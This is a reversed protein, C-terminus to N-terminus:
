RVAVSTGRFEPCGGVAPVMTIELGIIIRGLDGVDARATAKLDPSDPLRGMQMTIAHRIVATLQLQNAAHAGDGRPTAFVIAQLRGKVASAVLSAGKTLFRSGPPFGAPTSETAKSRMADAWKNDVFEILRVHLEIDGDTDEFYADWGQRVQKSLRQLDVRNSDLVKTVDLPGNTTSHFRLGDTGAQDATLAYSRLDLLDRNSDAFASPMAPATVTLCACVVLVLHVLFRHM